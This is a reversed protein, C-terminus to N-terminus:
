LGGGRPQGRAWNPPRRHGLADRGARATPPLGAGSRQASPRPPKQAWGWTAPGRAPRPRGPSRPSSSPPPVLPGRPLGSCPLRLEAHPSESGPMSRAAARPHGNRCASSLFRARRAPSADARGSNIPFAGEEGGGARPAGPLGATRRPSTLPTVAPRPNSARLTAQPVAHHRPGTRGGPHATPVPVCGRPFASRPGGRTGPGTAGGSGTLPSDRPALAAAGAGAEGM